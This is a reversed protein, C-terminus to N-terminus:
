MRIGTGSNPLTKRAANTMVAEVATRFTACTTTTGYLVCGCVATGGRQVVARCTDCMGSGPNTARQPLWGPRAQAAELLSRLEAVERELTAIRDGDGDEDGSM